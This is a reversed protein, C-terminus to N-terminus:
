NKQSYRKWLASTVFQIVTFPFSLMSSVFCGAAIHSFFDYSSSIGASHTQGDSVTHIHLKLIAILLAFGPGIVHAVIMGRVGKTLYFIFLVFWAFFVTFINTWTPDHHNVVMDRVVAFLSFYASCVLTFWMLGRLSFQAAALPRPEDTPSPELPNQPNEGGAPGDSGNATAKINKKRDM